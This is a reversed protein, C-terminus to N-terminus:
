AVTDNGTRPEVENTVVHMGFHTPFRNRKELLRRRDTSYSSIFTPRRGELLGRENLEMAALGVISPREPLSAFREIAGSVVADAAATDPGFQDRLQIHVRGLASIYDRSFGRVDRALEGIVTKRSGSEMESLVLRKFKPDESLRNLNAEPEVVHTIVVRGDPRILRSSRAWASHVATGRHQMHRRLEACVRYGLVTSHEQRFHAKATELQTSEAGYLTSVLHPAQDCYGHATTLMNAFRRAIVPLSNGHGTWEHSDAYTAERLTLALLEREFEEYNEMMLNFLDELALYVALRKQAQIVEDYQDRTLDLVPERGIVFRKLVFHTM